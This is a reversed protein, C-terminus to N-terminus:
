SVERLKRFLWREDSESFIGATQGNIIIVLDWGTDEDCWVGDDLDPYQTLSSVERLPADVLWMDATAYARPKFTRQGNSSPGKGCFMYGAGYAFFHEYFLGYDKLEGERWKKTVLKDPTLRWAITNGIWARWLNYTAQIRVDGRRWVWPSSPEQAPPEKLGRLMDFTMPISLTIPNDPGQPILVFLRIDNQGFPLAKVTTGGPFRADLTLADTASKEIEQLLEESRARGLFSSLDAGVSPFNSFNKGITRDTMLRIVADQMDQHQGHVKALDGQGDLQFDGYVVPQDAREQFQFFRFDM